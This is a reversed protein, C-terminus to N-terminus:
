IKRFRNPEQGSGPGPDGPRLPPEPSNAGGSAEQSEYWVLFREADEKILHPAKDVWALRILKRLDGGIIRAYKQIFKMSPPNVKGNEISSVYGKHSGLKRALAELTLGKESRLRKVLVGFHSM